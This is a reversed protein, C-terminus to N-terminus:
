FLLMSHHSFRIRWRCGFLLLSCVLLMSCCCRVVVDFPTFLSHALSLWVVVVFLGVVDFLLMSCCGRITHFAFAGVVVLCCCRVFWCCRVVVDFLLRSHHSFRIRWRCGFLLLSCVLLM